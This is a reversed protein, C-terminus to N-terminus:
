IYKYTIWIRSDFYLYTTRQICFKIQCRTSAQPLVLHDEEVRCTCSYFEVELQTPPLFRKRHPQCSFCLACIRGTSCATYSSILLPPPRLASSKWTVTASPPLAGGLRRRCLSDTKLAEPVSVLKSPFWCHRRCRSWIPYSQTLNFVTQRPYHIQHSEYFTNSELLPFPNYGYVLRVTSVYVCLWVHMCKLCPAGGGM